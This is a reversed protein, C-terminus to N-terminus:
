YPRVISGFTPLLGYYIQGVMAWIINFLRFADQLNEITIFGIFLRTPLTISLILLRTKVDVSVLHLVVGYTIMYKKEQHLLRTKQFGPLMLDCGDEKNILVV